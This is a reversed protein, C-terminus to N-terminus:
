HVLQVKNTVNVDISRTSLFCKLNATLGQRAAIHLPTDGDKQLPYHTCLRHM